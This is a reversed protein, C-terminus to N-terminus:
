GECPLESVIENQTGSVLSRQVEWLDVFERQLSRAVDDM